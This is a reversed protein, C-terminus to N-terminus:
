KKKLLEILALAFTAVATATTAVALWFTSRILSRTELAVKAQLVFRALTLSGKTAGSAIEGPYMAISEYDKAWLKELQERDHHSEDSM